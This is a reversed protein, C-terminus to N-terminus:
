PKMKELAAKVGQSQPFRLALATLLAKASDAQGGAELAQAKLIGYRTALRPDDERVRLQALDALAGQPDHRDRLKSDIALFMVSTDNPMMRVLEDTLRAADDAHGSDRALRAQHYLGAVLLHGVDEPDGSWIGVGGAYEYVLDGGHEGTEYICVAAGLGAVASIGRVVKGAKKTALLLGVLELGAVILLVNRTRRGWDEHEQVAQRAGPIREVPGHADLGSQQAVVAAGAALILLVAAAPNMWAGKGALSVVRLLVGVLGLAIVFHVVQPHLTAINPM